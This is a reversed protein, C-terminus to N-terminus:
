PMARQNEPVVAPALRPTWHPILDETMAAVKPKRTHGVPVPHPKRRPIM